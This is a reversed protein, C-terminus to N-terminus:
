SIETSVDSSVREYHKQLGYSRLRKRGVAERWGQMRRMIDHLPKTNAQNMDRYQSGLCETWIEAVSVTERLHRGEVLAADGALFGRREYLSMKQWGDPLLIDLYAKVAEYRDDVETHEDQVQRAVAEMSESLYLTEGAHYYHLAEAWLQGRDQDLEGIMRRVPQVKTRVVWFRRNGSSGRLFADINTSAAFVSQRPVTQRFEKFAGRQTDEQRSLFAKIGELEAYKLGTLEGIEIIWHGPLQEAARTTGLMHFSFNDTFWPEALKRFFTSKYTGEAGTLTLTYDFKIGPQMVRAVAATFWKRAVTATFDCAHAGFYDPLVAELRPVRDWPPLSQLYKRVPHFGNRSWVALLADRVKAVGTIGYVTELYGRLEAADRDNFQRGAPHDATLPQWPLSGLVVPSNLFENFAVRGRIANDHTLVLTINNFTSLYQGRGDINMQSLWQTAVEGTLPEPPSPLGLDSRNLQDIVSLVQAAGADDTAADAEAFEVAAAQMKETGIQIKVNEDTLVLDVCARYSPLKTVATGPRTDEDRMGFLHLRVLDFANCLKGSIPDTGHHSYAYKDDYVVLGGATSGLAYTYRQGQGDIVPEYVQPLYKEIVESISYCRCFAGIVGRKELPDGQKTIERRM